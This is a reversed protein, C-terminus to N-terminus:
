VEPENRWFLVGFVKEPENRWFGDNTMAPSTGAMWAKRLPLCPTSARSLRPCSPQSDEACVEVDDNRRWGNTLGLPTTAARRMGAPKRGFQRNRVRRMGMLPYRLASIRLRPIRRPRQSAKRSLRDRWRSPVASGYRPGARREASWQPTKRLGRSRRRFVSLPAWVSRGQNRPSEGANM